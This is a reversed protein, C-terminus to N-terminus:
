EFNGESCVFLSLSPLMHLTAARCCHLVFQPAVWLLMRDGSHSTVACSVGAGTGTKVSVKSSCGVLCVSGKPCDKKVRVFQPDILLELKDICDANERAVSQMGMHLAGRACESLWATRWLM